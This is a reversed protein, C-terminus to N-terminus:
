YEESFFDANGQLMLVNIIFQFISYYTMETNNEHLIDHKADPVVILDVNKGQSELNQCIAQSGIGYFSLPDNAGSLILIITEDAVSLYWSKNSVRSTIIYFDRILSATPTDIYLPDKELEEINDLNFSRYDKNESPTRDMLEMIKRFIIQANDASRNKGLKENLMKLPTEILDFGEPFEVPGCLIAGAIEDGLLALCARAISAGMSYGLFFYPVDPYDEKIINHLRCADDVMREAGDDPLFGPGKNASKGHGLHDNGCVLINNAALFEALDTYREIHEKEGHVIQLIAIPEENPNSWLSTYIKDNGTTSKFYGEKREVPMIDELNLKLSM